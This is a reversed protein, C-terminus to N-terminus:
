ANDDTGVDFVDFYGDHEARRLPLGLGVFRYRWRGPVNAVVVVQYSGPAVRLVSSDVGYRLQATRGKPDRIKVEVRTPEIPDDETGFRVGLGVTDGVAYIDPGGTVATMM